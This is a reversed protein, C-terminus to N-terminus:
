LRLNLISVLALFCSRCGGGGGHVTAVSPPGGSGLIWFRWFVVLSLEMCICLYLEFFPCLKMGQDFGTAALFRLVRGSFKSVGGRLNERM